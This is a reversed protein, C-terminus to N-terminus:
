ENVQDPLIILQQRATGPMAGAATLPITLTDLVHIEEVRGGARARTPYVVRVADFPELAPNPISTFDVSYPLGLNQKLLSTAAKVAQATTTILPSSYFMPVKGFNGYWYTPSSPANDVVVARAAPSTDAAEGVAVVANYVGERTIHKALAVMVGSPGFDVDWVPTTPNPPDRIVLVGRYDWYWIKGAATVLDNLFAYRDQEAVNNAGIVTNMDTADDWQITAWPYVEKVLNIVVAGRSNTKLYQKPQLLKADVIGSMRDRATIRIPGDPPENQEAAIITFYGLSVWEPVPGYTVGRRIFVENGYPALLDDNENPWAGTGDITLDVTGRIDATGDLVVNGDIIQVITGNPSVGTQGPSVIMAEVTIRHSGRLLALFNASVPRM